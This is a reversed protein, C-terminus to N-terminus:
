RGSSACVSSRLFQRAERIESPEPRQEQWRMALAGYQVCAEPVDGLRAAARALGLTIRRTTGIREAAQQYARRADAYRHVQLWLDGAAEHATILPAGPVGASLRISELRLAQDLLLSMSDRESQAAAAAAQLVYAALRDGTANLSAVAADVDKLSEPSGGVRYADRAAIWGRLYTVHALASACGAKSAKDLRELAGQMDFVDARAKAAALAACSQEQALLLAILLATM